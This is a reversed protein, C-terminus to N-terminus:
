RGFSVFERDSADWRINMDALAQLHLNWISFEDLSGSYVTGAGGPGSTWLTPIAGSGATYTGNAINVGMVVGLIGSVGNESAPITDADPSDIHFANIASRIGQLRQLTQDDIHNHREGGSTYIASAYNQVLHSANFGYDRLEILNPGATWDHWGSVGGRGDERRAAGPPMHLIGNFDGYKNATLGTRGQQHVGDRQLDTKKMWICYVSTGDIGKRSELPNSGDSGMRLELVSHGVGDITQTGVITNAVLIAGHGEGAVITIMTRNPILVDATLMDPTGGFNNAVYRLADPSLILHTSNGVPSATTKIETNRATGVYHGNFLHKESPGNKDVLDATQNTRRGTIIRNKTGFFGNEKINTATWNSAYYGDKYTTYDVRGQQVKTIEPIIYGVKVVPPGVVALNLYEPPRVALLIANATHAGDSTTLEIREATGDIEPQFKGGSAPYTMYIESAMAFHNGVWTGEFFPSIAYSPKLRTTKFTIDRSRVYPLIDISRLQGDTGAARAIAADIAALGLYKRASIDGLEINRESETLEFGEDPNGTYEYSTGTINDGMAIGFIAEWLADISWLKQAVEEDSLGAFEPSSLDAIPNDKNGALIAGYEPVRTIDIWRDTDPTLTLNGVYDQVDYPNVSELGTAAGQRVLEETDYQITIHKPEGDAKFFNEKTRASDGGESIYDLNFIGRDSSYPQSTPRLVGGSSECDVDLSLARVSTGSFNDVVIGNKFRSNGDEDLVDLEAADKELANLSVYYELNEVRKALRSIDKMTHRVTMNPVVQVDEPNLTYPPITM